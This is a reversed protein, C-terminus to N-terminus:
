LAAVGLLGVLLAVAHGGKVAMPHAAENGTPAAKGGVTTQAPPQQGSNSLIVSSTSTSTLSAKSSTTNRVATSTSTSTMSTLSVSGNEAKKSGPSAAGTEYSSGIGVTTEQTVTRVPTGQAPSNASGGSGSSGSVLYKPVYKGAGDKTVATIVAPYCTDMTYQGWYVNFFGGSPCLYFVTTDGLAFTSNRPCYTFGATVIAGAQPPEDFQFQYNSAVYGTRGLGDRLIGNKLTVKLDKRENPYPDWSTPVGIPSNSSGGLQRKM